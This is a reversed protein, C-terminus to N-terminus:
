WTRSAALAAAMNMARLRLLVSVMVLWTLMTPPFPTLRTVVGRLRHRCGVALHMVANTLRAPWRGLVDPLLLVMIKLRCMGSSVLEVPFLEMVMSMCGLPRTSVKVLSSLDRM